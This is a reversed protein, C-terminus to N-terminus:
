LVDNTENTGSPAAEDTWYVFSGDVAPNGCITTPGADAYDVFGPAVGGGDLNARGVGATAGNNLDGLDTWYVYASANAAAFAWVVLTAAGMTAALRGLLREVTM